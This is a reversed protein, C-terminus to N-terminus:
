VREITNTHFSGKGFWISHNVKHLIFGMENFDKGQYSQWCDTYIKTAVMVHNIDKNDHIMTRISYINKKSYAISNRKTKTILLFVKIEYRAREVIGFM